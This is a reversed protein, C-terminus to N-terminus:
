AEIRELWIERWYCPIARMCSMNYAGECVVGELVICPNKMTLM